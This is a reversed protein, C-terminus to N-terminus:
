SLHDADKAPKVGDNFSSTSMNIMMWYKLPRRPNDDDNTYFKRQTQHMGVMFHDLNFAWEFGGNKAFLYM